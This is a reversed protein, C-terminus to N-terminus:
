LLIYETLTPLPWGQAWAPGQIPEFGRVGALCYNPGLGDWIQRREPVFQLYKLIVWLDHGM